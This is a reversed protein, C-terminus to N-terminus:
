MTTSLLEVKDKLKKVEELLLYIIKSENITLYGDGNTSVIEPCIEQLEQAMCGITHKGSEIYDFEYIPLDLISKECKYPQINTKLRRDSTAYFEPSTISKSAAITGDTSITVNNTNNASLIITKNTSNTTSIRVDDMTTTGTVNIGSSSTVM